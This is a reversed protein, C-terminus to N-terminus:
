HHIPKLGCVVRSVANWVSNVALFDEVLKEMEGAIRRLKETTVPLRGVVFASCGVLEPIALAKGDHAATQVNKLSLLTHVDTSITETKVTLTNNEALEGL